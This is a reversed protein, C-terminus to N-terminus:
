RRRACNRECRPKADGFDWPTARPAGQMGRPPPSFSRRNAGDDEEDSADFTFAANFVFGDEEDSMERGERTTSRAVSRADTLSRARPKPRGRSVDVGRERGLM